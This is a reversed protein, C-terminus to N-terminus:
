KDFPRRKVKILNNLSYYTEKMNGDFVGCRQYRIKSMMFQHGFTLYSHRQYSSAYNDSELEVNLRHFMLKNM